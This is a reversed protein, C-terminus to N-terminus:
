KLLLFKRMFAQTGTSLRYLYMGSSLAKGDVLVSHYGAPRMEDVLTMVQQGLINFVELKVRSDRPLAFEIVTSPNFPNPYNQSLAFETPLPKKENVGNVGSPQISETYHVTADKDIQKLRYYTSGPLYTKDVYSYDHRVNTTGNGPIFSGSITQFGSSRNSSKQVEFGYNNQESVTTWSLDARGAAAASAVFNSLQVPLPGNPPDTFINTQLTGHADHIASFSNWTIDHNAAGNTITFRLTGVLTAVTPVDTGADTTLNDTEISRATGGNYSASLLPGYLVSTSIDWQGKTLISDFTMAASNYNFVFTSTGMNWAAGGIRQMFVSVDYNPGNRVTTISANGVQAQAVPSAALLVVIIALMSKAIFNRKM